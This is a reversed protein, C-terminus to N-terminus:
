PYHYGHYFGPPIEEKQMLEEYACSEAKGYYNINDIGGWEDSFLSLQCLEAEENM